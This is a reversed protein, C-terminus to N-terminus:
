CPGFSRFILSYLLTQVTFLCVTLIKGGNCVAWVNCVCFMQHQLCRLSLSNYTGDFVVNSRGMPMGLEVLFM